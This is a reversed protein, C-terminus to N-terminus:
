YHWYWGFNPHRIQPLSLAFTRLHPQLSQPFHVPQDQPLWYYCPLDWRFLVSKLLSQTEVIFRMDNELVFHSKHPNPGSTVLNHNWRTLWTRIQKDNAVLLLVSSRYKSATRCSGVTVHTDINFMPTNNANQWLTHYQYFFDYSVVFIYIPVLCSIMQVCNWWLILTSKLNWYPRALYSFIHVLVIIPLHVESGKSSSVVRRPRAVEALFLLALPMSSSKAFARARRLLASWTTSLALRRPSLWARVLIILWPQFLTIVRVEEPTVPRQSTKRLEEIVRPDRRLDKKCGVLIIPLGACFHM